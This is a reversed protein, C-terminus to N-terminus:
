EDDEEMDELEEFTSELTANFEIFKEQLLELMAKNDGLHGITELGISAGCDDHMGKEADMHRKAIGISGPALKFCNDQSRGARLQCLENKKCDGTCSAPNWGRSKRAMYADFLTSNAEFAETVNHWFAPSLEAAPDTLPPSLVSGYVEKASYYKTWVPGTTQFEPNTMDAMYQVTDLVAFTEPDVEYVRFTPMGSTPTLSPSIYTMAKANAFNRKSYDSYSIEFHDVHTHGFFMAAITNSYRNVIQDFYNSGDYFADGDGMPMHGIIYVRDGAKEAADLEKVLWTWQGNPDKEMNKQYLWFNLKYYMNTNLSIVRLKGGPFKAAYTGQKVIDDTTAEGTWRPWYEGLLDYVWQANTGLSRPQFLNTPHQEHNGATGYVINLFNDMFTYANNVVFCNNDRNTELSHVQIHM